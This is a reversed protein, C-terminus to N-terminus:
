ANWGTAVRIDDVNWGNLAAATRVRNWAAEIETEEHGNYDFGLEYQEGTVKHTYTAKGIKM